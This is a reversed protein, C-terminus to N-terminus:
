ASFLALLYSSLRVRAPPALEIEQLQLLVSRRAIAFFIFPLVRQMDKPNSSLIVRWSLSFSIQTALVKHIKTTAYNRHSLGSARHIMWGEKKQKAILCLTHQCCLMASYIVEIPKLHLKGGKFQRSSDHFYLLFSESYIHVMSLRRQMALYKQRSTTCMACHLSTHEM